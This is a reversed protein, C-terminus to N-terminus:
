LRSHIDVRRDVARAQEREQETPQAPLVIMPESTGRGVVSIQGRSIGRQELMDAVAQARQLSLTQNMREDGTSDAHGIVTVHAPRGCDQTDHNYGAIFDEIADKSKEMPITNGSAFFVGAHRGFICVPDAIPGATEGACGEGLIALLLVTARKV